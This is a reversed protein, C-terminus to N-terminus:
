TDKWLWATRGDRREIERETFHDIRARGVRSLFFRDDIAEGRDVQLAQQLIRASALRDRRPDRIEIASIESPQEGFVADLRETSQWRITAPTAKSSCPRPANPRARAM